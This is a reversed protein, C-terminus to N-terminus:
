GQAEKREITLNPKVGLVTTTRGLADKGTISFIANIVEFLESETGRITYGHEQKEIEM